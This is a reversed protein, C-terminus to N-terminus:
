TIKRKLESLKKNIAANTQNLKKAALQQSGEEVIAIFAKICAIENM